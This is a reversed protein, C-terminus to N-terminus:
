TICKKKTDKANQNNTNISFLNVLIRAIKKYFEEQNGKQKVM